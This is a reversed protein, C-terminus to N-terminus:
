RQGTSPALHSARPAVFMAVELKVMAAFRNSLSAAWNAEQGDRGSHVNGVM